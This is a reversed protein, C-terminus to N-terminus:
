ILTDSETAASAGTTMSKGNAGDTASVVVCDAIDCECVVYHLCGDVTLQGDICNKCCSVISSVPIRMLAVSPSVPVMLPTVYEEMVSWVM